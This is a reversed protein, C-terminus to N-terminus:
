LMSDMMSGREILEPPIQYIGPSKHRKMNETATDVGFANCLPVLTEAARIAAQQVDGVECINLFWGTSGKVDL